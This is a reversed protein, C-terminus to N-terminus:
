DAYKFSTSFSDNEYKVIMSEWKNVNSLKSRAPNVINCIETYVQVLKSMPVINLSILNVPTSNANERVIINVAYNHKDGNDNCKVHVHIIKYKNPIFHKVKYYIKSYIEDDMMISSDVTAELGVVDGDMLRMNNNTKKKSKTDKKDGINYDFDYDSMYQRIDGIFRGDEFGISFGHEPDLTWEGQLIVIVGKSPDGYKKSQVSIGTVTLTPIDSYSKIPSNIVKPHLSNNVANAEKCFKSEISKSISESRTSLKAIAMDAIKKAEDSKNGMDYHVKPNWEKSFFKFTIKNGSMVETAILEGGEILLSELCKYDVFEM